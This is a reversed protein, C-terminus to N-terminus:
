FRQNLFDTPGDNQPPEPDPRVYDRDVLLVRTKCQGCTGAPIDRAFRLEMTLPVLLGDKTSFCTQCHALERRGDSALFVANKEHVVPARASERRKFDAIQSNLSAIEERLSRIETTAADLQDRLAMQERLHENESRLRKNDAVATVAEKAGRFTLWAPWQIV